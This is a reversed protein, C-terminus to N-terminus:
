DYLHKSKQIMHLFITMLDKTMQNLKESQADMLADCGSCSGYGVFTVIYDKPSPQYTKRNIFFIKYGQYDGDDIENESNFVYSQHSLNMDETNFIFEVMKKVLDSYDAYRYYDENAFIDMELEHKHNEWSKVLNKIM